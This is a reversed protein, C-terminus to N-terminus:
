LGIVLTNWLQLSVIPRLLTINNNNVLLTILVIARCTLIIYELKIKHLKASVRGGPKVRFHITENGNTTAWFLQEVM